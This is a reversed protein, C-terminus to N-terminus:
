TTMRGWFLSHKALTYFKNFRLLFLLFIHKDIKEAIAPSNDQAINNPKIAAEYRLSRTM